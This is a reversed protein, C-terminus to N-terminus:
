YHMTRTVPQRLAVKKDCVEFFRCRPCDPRGMEPCYDRADFFIPYTEPVSRGSRSLVDSFVEYAASRLAEEVPPPVTLGEELARRADADAVELTGWRLALRLAHRDLVPPWDAADAKLFREPRGSLILALLFSKRQLRDERYGPLESMAEVFRALPKPGASAGELIKNPTLKAAELAEGWARALEAHSKVLPLPCDGADSRFLRAFLPADMKAQFSALLMKPEEQASRWAAKWLFDEGVYERGDVYGRVPGTLRNGDEHWLGYHHLAVTFFFAPAGAAGLPPFWPTSGSYVWDPAPPPPLAKLRAALRDVAAPVIRVPPM